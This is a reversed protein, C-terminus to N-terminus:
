KIVYMTDLSRSSKRLESYIMHCRFVFCIFVVGWVQTQLLRNSIGESSIEVYFRYFIAENLTRVKRTVWANNLATIFGLLFWHSCAVVIITTLNIRLPPPHPWISPWVLRVTAICVSKPSAPFDASKIFHWVGFIFCLHCSSSRLM